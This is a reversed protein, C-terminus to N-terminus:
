CLFVRLSIIVTLLKAILHLLLTEPVARLKRSELRGNISSNRLQVAVVVIAM